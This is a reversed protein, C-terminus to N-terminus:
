CKLRRNEECAALYEREIDAYKKELAAYAQLQVELEQKLAKVRNDM